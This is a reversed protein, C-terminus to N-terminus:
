RIAECFPDLRNSALAARRWTFAGGDSVYYYSAGNPMLAASLGGFGSLAPIWAEGSCGISPAANWAWFGNQYRQSDIVARLGRDTPDRQLAAALMARDLMAEGDIEGGNQLFRTLLAIDNRTLVMGWGSFPQAQADYSRRIAMTIPSLGLERWIPVLLDTYYDAQPSGTRERLYANIATGLIYTDGTRYVFSTGPAGRREFATCAIEIKDDHSDALFFRRMDSSTEDVDYVDSNHVGSAMDLANEFTVGVWRSGSCAPVYDSVMAQMAGPYLAELRMAGIGAALSKAWSYSPLIMEDCYRYSGFRTDCGGVYHVDGVIYGFATMAAPAVEDPAGFAGAGGGALGAISRTPIRADREDRFNAIITDADPVVGPRYSIAAAGWMDFQMYACTESGIQYILHSVAGTDDFRFTALGNHICNANREMLAFPLAARTAAPEAPDDWVRGPAFMWEWDPHANPMATRVAPILRGDDQVLDIVFPPLTTLSNSTPAYGFDDKRLVFHAAEAGEFALTGAFVNSPPQANETDYFVDTSFPRDATVGQEFADSPITASLEDPLFQAVISITDAWCTDNAANGAIRLGLYGRDAEGQIDITGGIAHMTFGDDQGDVVRGIEYWDQGNPSFELLCADEGELESAAFSARIDIRSVGSLDFSRVVAADRTLRLSANGGYQTVRVDGRGATGSWGEAEGSQFDERLLERADVTALPACILALFLCWARM